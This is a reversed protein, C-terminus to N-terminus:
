DCYESVLAMLKDLEIPKELYGVIHRIAQPNDHAYGSIIAVPIHALEPDWQKERLFEDANMFPLMTDLLILRPPPMTHLYDFAEVANVCSEVRYGEDQIIHSLINRIVQSDEIVLIYKDTVSPISM